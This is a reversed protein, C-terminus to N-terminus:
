NQSRRSRRPWLGCCSAEPSSERAARPLPTPPQALPEARPSAPGGSPPEPDEEQVILQLETTIVRGRYELRKTTGSTGPRHIFLVPSESTGFIRKRFQRPSSRSAPGPDAAEELAPPARATTGLHELGTSSTSPSSASASASAQPDEAGRRSKPTYFFGREGCVLYLAEVLHSGCLHQNVFAQAPNPEWLVLLALLPLLRMWLAM